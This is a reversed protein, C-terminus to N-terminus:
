DLITKVLHLLEKLIQNFNEDFDRIWNPDIGTKQQFPM